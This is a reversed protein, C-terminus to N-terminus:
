FETFFRGRSIPHKKETGVFGSKRRKVEGEEEKKSKGGYIMHIIRGFLVCISVYGYVCVYRCM